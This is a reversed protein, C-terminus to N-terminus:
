PQAPIYLESGKALVTGNSLSLGNLENLRESSTGHNSAFEGYTTEDQIIVSRVTTKADGTPPSVAPAPSPATAKELAPAPEHAVPAEAKPKPADSKEPTTPKPSPAPNPNSITRVAPTPTSITHLPTAPESKALQAPAPSLPKRVQLVQGTRLSTPKVKPNSASLSSVSVGVKKSISHYTDGNKVTYTSAAKPAAPAAPSSVAGGTPVKLTQGPPIIPSSKLGNAKGLALTSCGNRRAIRELTDGARVTYSSTTPNESASKSSAPLKTLEKSGKLRTNESELEQIKKDRQVCQDCRLPSESKSFAASSGLVLLSTVTLLTAKM